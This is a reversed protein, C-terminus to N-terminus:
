KDGFEYRVYNSGGLIIVFHDLFIAFSQVM